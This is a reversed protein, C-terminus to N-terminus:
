NINIVISSPTAYKETTPELAANTTTDLISHQQSPSQPTQDDKDLISKRTTAETAADTETVSLNDTNETPAVTGVVDGFLNTVVEVADTSFETPTNTEVPAQQTLSPQAAAPTYNATSNQSNANSMSSKQNTEMINQTCARGAYMILLAVVAAIIIAIIRRNNM